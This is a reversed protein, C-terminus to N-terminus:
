AGKFIDKASSSLTLILCNGNIIGDEKAKDYMTTDKKGDKEVTLFDKIEDASSCKIIIASNLLGNTVMILEYKEAREIQEESLLIKLLTDVGTSDASVTKVEWEKSEFAKKVAEGKDGCSVFTLTVMLLAMVVAMIRVIKKM